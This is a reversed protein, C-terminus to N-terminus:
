LFFILMHHNKIFIVVILLLPAREPLLRLSEIIIRNKIRQGFTWIKYPGDNVAVEALSRKEKKVVFAVIIYLYYTQCVIM